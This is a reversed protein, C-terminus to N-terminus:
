TGEENPTTGSVRGEGVVVTARVRTTLEASNRTRPGLCVKIPEPKPQPKM